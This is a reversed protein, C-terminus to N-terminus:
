NPRMKFCNKRQQFASIKTLQSGSNNIAQNVKKQLVELVNLKGRSNVKLNIKM